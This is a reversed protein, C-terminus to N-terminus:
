LGLITNFKQTLYREVCVVEGFTLARAYMIIAFIDGVMAFNATSDKGVIIKPTAVGGPASVIRADEVINTRGRQGVDAAAQRVKSMLYVTNTVIAVGEVSANADGFTSNSSSARGMYSSQAITSGWGCMARLAGGPVATWRAIGFMTHDGNTSGTPSELYQSNATFRVSPVNTLVGRLPRNGDTAQIAHNGNGSLDSWQSVGSGADVLGTHAELWITLNAIDAPTQIGRGAALRAM